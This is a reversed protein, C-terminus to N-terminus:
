QGIVEIARRGLANLLQHGELAKEAIIQDASKMFEQGPVSNHVLSLYGINLGVAEAAETLTKCAGYAYMRLALKARPSLRQADIKEKLEQVSPTCRDREYPLPM